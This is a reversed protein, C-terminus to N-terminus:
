LFLIFVFFNFRTEKKREKEKINNTQDVDDDEHKDV